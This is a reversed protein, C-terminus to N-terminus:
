LFPLGLKPRATQAFGRQSIHAGAATAAATPAIRRDVTTIMKVKRTHCKTASKENTKTRYIGYNLKITCDCVWNLEIRQWDRVPADRGGVGRARLTTSIKNKVPRSIATKPISSGEARIRAAVPARRCRHSRRRHSARHAERSRECKRQV